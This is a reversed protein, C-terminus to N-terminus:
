KRVLPYMAFFLVRTGESENLVCTAVSRNAKGRRLDLRLKINTSGQMMAYNM